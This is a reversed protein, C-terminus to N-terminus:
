IPRYNVSWFCSGVKIELHSTRLSFINRLKDCDYYNRVVQQKIGDEFQRVIFTDNKGPQNFLKDGVEPIYIHDVIFVIAGPSLYSHLRRLFQATSDKALNSFWFGVLAADFIRNTNPLLDLDGYRFEVKDPFLEKQMAVALMEPSNDIALVSNAVKALSETLGGAGCGLELVHRDAFLEEIQSTIAQQEGQRDLQYRECVGNDIGDYTYSNQWM